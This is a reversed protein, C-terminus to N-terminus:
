VNINHLPHKCIIVRKTMRVSFDIELDDFFAINCKREHIYMLHYLSILFHSKNLPTSNHIQMILVTVVESLM